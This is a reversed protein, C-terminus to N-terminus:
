EALFNLRNDNRSDIKISLEHLAEQFKKQLDKLNNNSVSKQIYSRVQSQYMGQYRLDILFEKIKPNLSDWNCAGYLKEVDEKECLRKTDLEVRSYEIEFLKVQSIQSIEINKIENQEIFDDAQVGSLGAGKSLLLADAPTVGARILDHFILSQNKLKMDYGRGITVGSASSPHHARRSHFRGGENGENDFTFNGKQPKLASM